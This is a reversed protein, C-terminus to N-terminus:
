GTLYAVLAPNERLISLTPHELRRIVAEEADGETLGQWQSDDGGTMTEIAAHLVEHWLTLRAVDDTLDPHLLIRAPLHQTVGYADRLHKDVANKWEDPTCQKVTYTVYGAKVTAPLPM